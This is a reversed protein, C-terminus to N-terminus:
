CYGNKKDTIVLFLLNLVIPSLECLFMCESSKKFIEGFKRGDVGHLHIFQHWQPLNRPFSLNHFYLRRSFCFDVSCAASM